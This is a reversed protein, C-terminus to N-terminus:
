LREGIWLDLGRMIMDVAITGILIAAVRGSIELYREMLQESRKRISDFVIKMLLLFLCSIVMALGIATFALSAQLRQGILVSASVTGPGIMFPMALAGALHEPPGRLVEIMKAGLTMYRIAIILFIVGGFVLFAAFRVQLVQTFLQDGALAFTCFVVGSIAFARLLVTAFARLSLESMLDHLYASMLFPNFLVALLVVSDWFQQSM